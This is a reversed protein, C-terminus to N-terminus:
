AAAGDIVHFFTGTVSGQRVGQEPVSVGSADRCDVLSDGRVSVTSAYHFEHGFVETGESGLSCDRQLRARRYGLHLKRKAFSTELGLLGTMEHRRGDADELGLGLVM